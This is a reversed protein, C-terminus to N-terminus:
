GVKGTAFLTIIAGAIATFAGTVIGILKLNEARGARIVDNATTNATREADRALQEARALRDAAERQLERLEERLYELERVVAGADARTKVDIEVAGLRRDIERFREELRPGWEEATM